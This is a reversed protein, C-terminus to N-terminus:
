EVQQDQRRLDPEGFGQRGAKGNHTAYGVLVLEVMSVTTGGTAEVSLGAVSGQGRGTAAFTGNPGLPSDALAADTFAAGSLSTAWSTLTYTDEIGTSRMAGDPSVWRVSSSQALRQAAAATMEASFGNVLSLDRIITGGLQATLAEATQSRDAKQVIVQVRETPATVAALVLRPHLRSAVVPAVVPGALGALMVIVMLLRFLWTKKFM